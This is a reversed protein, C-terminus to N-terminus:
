NTKEDFDAQLDDMLMIKAEMERIKNKQESNKV